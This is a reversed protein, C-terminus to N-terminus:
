KCVFNATGDTLRYIRSPIPAKALRAASAFTRPRTKSVCRITELRMAKNCLSVWLFHSVQSSEGEERSGEDENSDVSNSDNDGGTDKKQQLNQENSSKKKSADVTSLKPVRIQTSQDNDDDSDVVQRRNM